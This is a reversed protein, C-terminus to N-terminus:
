TASVSSKPPVASSSAIAVVSSQRASGDGDGGDKGDGVGDGVSAREWSFDRIGFHPDFDSPVSKRTWISIEM